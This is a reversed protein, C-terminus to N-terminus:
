LCGKCLESFAWAPWAVATVIALAANVRETKTLSQLYEHFHSLATM